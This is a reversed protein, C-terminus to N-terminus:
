KLEALLHKADLVAIQPYAIQTALAAAYGPALSLAKWVWRDSTGNETIFTCEACRASGIHLTKPNMNLGVGLGKLLAEKITWLLFFYDLQGNASALNSLEYADAFGEAIELFDTLQQKQEIDVGIPSLSIAVVALEGSHSLSFEPGGEIYPKGYRGNLLPIASARGTYKKLLLHLAAHSILYRRKDSGRSFRNSRNVEESSIVGNLSSWPGDFYSTQIVWVDIQSDTLEM